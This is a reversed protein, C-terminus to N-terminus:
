QVLCSGAFKGHSAQRKEEGMGRVAGLVVVQATSQPGHRHGDREAM